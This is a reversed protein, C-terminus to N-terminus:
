KLHKSDSQKLSFRAFLVTQASYWMRTIRKRSTTLTAGLKTMDATM